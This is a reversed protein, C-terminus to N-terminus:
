GPPATNWRRPPHSALPAYDPWAVAPTSTRGIDNVATFLVSKVNAQRYINRTIETVRAFNDVANEEYQSRSAPPSPAAPKQEQVPEAAPAPATAKAVASAVEYVPTFGASIYLHRLKENKQEERPFLKSVRELRELAKSRMGYQLYIEAQLIFDELVTPESERAPEAAAPEPSAQVATEPKNDVRHFRNAIRRYQHDDIRGRLMELRKGHGPEYPDLEAARDLTEGAQGYKGAAYYLQFLKLLTHSYEHERNATDFLKVLYETFGLTALRRDSMEYMSTIFERRRGAVTEHDELRKALELAGRTDNVDLYVGVLSTVEELQQPDKEFAEWTYPEAEAPRRAAMLAHAYLERLEPLGRVKTVVQELVELCEKVSNRSFLGRGYLYIAQFNLPDFGYAKEYSAFGSGPSEQDQLLGLQVFSSAATKGEGLASAKEATLQLNEITPSLDVMRKCAALAQKDKNQREFGQLALAYADLAEKRDRKETLQAYQFTQMPTPTTIKCLKKYTISGKATEGSEFEMELLSSLLEAAESRRDLALCLDAAAQRVQENGPEDDLINLYEELAAEPKSRQLYKEAKELRKSIDAMPEVAGSHERFPRSCEPATSGMASMELRSSFASFYRCLLLGSAARSSYRFMRSSSGPFSCTRCAAASRHRASSRRESAASNSLERSSISNSDPSVALPEMVYLFSQLIVVGVGM